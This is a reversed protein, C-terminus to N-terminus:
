NFSFIESDPAHKQLMPTFLNPKLLRYFKYQSYKQAQSFHINADTKFMETVTDNM